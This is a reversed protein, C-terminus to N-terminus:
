CAVWIEKPRGNTNIRKSRIMRHDLLTALAASIEDAPTNKSFLDNSIASRSMGEPNARLARIIADATRNGTADGFIHRVSDNSYRIVEIAAELHALGIQSQGDLLAYSLAARLTQAESRATM